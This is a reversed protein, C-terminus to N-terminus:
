LGFWIRKFRGRVKNVEFPEVIYVARVIVDYGVYDMEEVKVHSNDFEGGGDGEVGDIQVVSWIKDVDVTLLADEGTV